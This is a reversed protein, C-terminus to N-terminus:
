EEDGREEDGREEDGREEDGRGEDGREEDGREEDGREEDGREEDGREENGREEDCNGSENDGDGDGIPNGGNKCKLDAKKAPAESLNSEMMKASLIDMHTKQKTIQTEAGAMKSVDKKRTGLAILFSETDAYYPASGACIVGM